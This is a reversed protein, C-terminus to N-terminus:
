NESITSLKATARDKLVISEAILHAQLYMERAKSLDGIAVSADGASLLAEAAGDRNQKYFEGASLYNKRAMVFEEMETYLHGLEMFIEPRQGLKALLDEFLTVAKDYDGDNKCVRVKILYSQFLFMSAPYERILRDVMTEAESYQGLLDYIAAIEYMAKERYREDTLLLNYYHLSSDYKMENRYLAGLENAVYAHYEKAEVKALIGHLTIKQKFVSGLLGFVRAKELQAEFAVTQLPYTMNIRDLEGLSQYYEKQEILLKAIRMRTKPALRSTANNSVYSRLADILTKYKGLKFTTEYILLTTEEEITRSPDFDEVREFAILAEKYDELAYYISGITRQASAAYKSRPYMAVLENFFDIAYDYEKRKFNISALIFVARDGYPSEPFQERHRLLKEEARGWLGLFYETRGKYFLYEDISDPLPDFYVLASDYSMEDSYTMGLLYHGHDSPELNILRTLYNRARELNKSELSVEAALSFSTVVLDQQTSTKIVTDLLFLCQGYEQMRAYAYALGIERYGFYDEVMRYSDVAGEYDHRQFANRAQMLLDYDNIYSLIMSRDVTDPIGSFYESAIDVQNQKLNILGLYYQAQWIGPAEEMSLHFFREAKEIQYKRYHVVGLYYCVDSLSINIQDLLTYATEHDGQALACVAAYYYSVYSPDISAELMFYRYAEKHDQQRLYVEGPWLALLILISSL